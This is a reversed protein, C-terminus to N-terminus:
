IIINTLILTIYFLVFIVTKVTILRTLTRAMNSLTVHAIAIQKSMQIFLAPTASVNKLDNFVNRNVTRRRRLLHLIM